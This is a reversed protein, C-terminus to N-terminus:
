QVSGMRCVATSLPQFNSPFHDDKTRCTDEVLNVPSGNLNGSKVDIYAGKRLIEASNYRLDFNDGVRAVFCIVKNV